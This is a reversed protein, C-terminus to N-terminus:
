KRFVIIVKNLYKKFMFGILYYLKLREEMITRVCLVIEDIFMSSIFSLFFVIITISLHWGINNTFICAFTWICEYFRLFMRKRELSIAFFTKLRGILRCYVSWSDSHMISWEVINFTLQFIIIILTIYM